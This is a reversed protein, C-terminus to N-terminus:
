LAAISTDSVHDDNSDLNCLGALCYLLLLDITCHHHALLLWKPTAIAGVHTEILVRDDNNFLLALFHGGLAVTDEPWHRALKNIATPM